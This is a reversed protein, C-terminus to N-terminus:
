KRIVARLKFPKPSYTVSLIGDLAPLEGDDPPLFQFRQVMASLFLFLEMRALSEGLCMRRGLSFPIFEDPRTCTGEKSLFREPCFEHPDSWIEEDWLVSEMMPLIITGKPISYGRFVVDEPVTHQIGLPVLNSKRLIEMATAEIYPLNSKDQLSPQRATGVNEKIEQFCKEQVEPYHLFFVLAWCLTTATTEMGAAFLDAVARVLNEETVTSEIGAAERKKIERLYVDIFDGAHHEDYNQKHEEISNIYMIDSYDRTEVLSKMGFLDGPLFRLIPFFNLLAGSRGIDKMGKEVTALYKLFVSDGHEYRKGFTLSCIINAVSLHVVPNPDFTQGNESEVAKLFYGIEEQIKEALVNKGLGLEKLIEISIKRQEKWLEGHSLVLGKKWTMLDFLYMNPRYSFMEGHKVFAEKLVSYSSMVIVLRGGMYLSFIDGYEKRWRRFQERPDRSMLYLHGIVPLPYPPGPPLPYLLPHQRSRLLLWLILFVTVFVLCTTPELLAM